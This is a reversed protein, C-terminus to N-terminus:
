HPIRFRGVLWKWREAVRYGWLNLVKEREGCSHCERELSEVVGVRWLIWAVRAKTIGCRALINAVFTGLRFRQRVKFRDLFCGNITDHPTPKSTRTCKECVLRRYGREDPPEVPIWPCPTM